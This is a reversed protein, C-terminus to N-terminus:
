SRKVVLLVINVVMLVLLVGSMVYITTLRKSVLKSFDHESVPKVPGNFRDKGLNEIHGLKVQTLDIKLSSLSGKVDELKTALAALVKSDQNGEKSCKTKVPPELNMLMNLARRLGDKIESTDKVLLDLTPVNVKDYSLMPVGQELMKSPSDYQLADEINSLRNALHILKSSGNSLIDHVKSLQREFIHAQSRNLEDSKRLFYAVLVDCSKFLMAESLWSCLTTLLKWHIYVGNLFSEHSISILPDLGPEIGKLEEVKAKTSVLNCWTNVKKDNAVCLLTANIFDKDELFTFTAGKHVSKIFSFKLNLYEVKEFTIGQM